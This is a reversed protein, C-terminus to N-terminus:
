FHVTVWPYALVWIKRKNVTSDEHIFRCHWDFFCKIVYGRGYRKVVEHNLSASVKLHYVTIVIQFDLDYNSCNHVSCQDEYLLKITWIVWDGQQEYVRRFVQLYAYVRLCKAAKVRAQFEELSGCANQKFQSWFINKFKATIMWIM